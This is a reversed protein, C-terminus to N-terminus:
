QELADIFRKGLFSAFSVILAGFFAAGFGTVSFGDIFSAIFWFLFANIVFTFLGLSLLTIPLALFLLVPRVFLNLAGLIVAVILGTYLSDVSVGSVLYGAALVGFANFLWQALLAAM